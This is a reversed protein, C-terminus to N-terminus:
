PAVEYTQEFVDPNCPYFEGQIGRIIYDGTLVGVWTHHLEDYVYATVEPDDLAEQKTPARFKDDGTFCKMLLFTFGLWQQADIEVPKKRYRM